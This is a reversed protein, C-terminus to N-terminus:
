YLVLEEWSMTPAKAEEGWFALAELSLARLELRVKELGSQNTRPACPSKGVQPELVFGHAQHCLAYIRSFMEDDSDECRIAYSGCLDYIDSLAPSYSSLTYGDGEGSAHYRPEKLEPFYADQEADSLCFARLIEIFRPWESWPWETPDEIKM